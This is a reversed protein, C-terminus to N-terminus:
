GREPGLGGERGQHIVASHLCLGINIMEWSPFPLFLLIEQCTPWWWRYFAWGVSVRPFVRQSAYKQLGVAQSSPGMCAAKASPSEKHGASISEAGFGTWSTLVWGLSQAQSLTRM